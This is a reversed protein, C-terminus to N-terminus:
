SDRPSPSTYLLCRTIRACFDEAERKKLVIKVDTSDATSLSNTDIKIKCTGVLMEFLNQETNVNSINGIGITNVKRNLTNRQIVLTTGDISIFTRAWVLIQWAVLIVLFVLAVLLGQLVAGGAERGLQALQAAERVNQVVGGVAVAGVFWLGRGLQEAVISIHNRFRESHRDM